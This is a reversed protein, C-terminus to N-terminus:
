EKELFGDVCPTRGCADLFIASSGCQQKVQAAFCSRSVVVKTSLLAGIRLRNYTDEYRITDIAINGIHRRLTASRLLFFAVCSHM